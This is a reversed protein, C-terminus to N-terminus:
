THSPTKAIAITITKYQDVGNIFGLVLSVNKDLNHRSSIESYGLAIASLQLSM